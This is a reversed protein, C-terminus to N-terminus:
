YNTTGLYIALGFFLITSFVMYLILLNQRKKMGYSHHWKEKFFAYDLRNYRIGNLIILLFIGVVIVVKNVVYKKHIIIQLICFVSFLNFVQMLVLIALGGTMATSQDKGKDYFRCACYFLYDFFRLIIM